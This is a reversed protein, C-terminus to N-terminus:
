AIPSRHFHVHRWAGDQRHWVRTEETAATLPLGDAGLRQVLRVYAVVATDGMLRVNPQSMTTHRPGEPPGLDFYYRHFPMGEILHGRGEPEFATLTPDCLAQYTEWDAAAISDLLRQNLALLESATDPM